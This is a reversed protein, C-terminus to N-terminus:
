DESDDEGTLDALGDLIQEWADEVYRWTATRGVFGDHVLLVHTGDDGPELAWTVRTPADEAGAADAAATLAFSHVLRHPEDVETVSGDVMVTGDDDVYRLTAGPMLSSELGSDFFHCRTEDSDTLARWVDEIGAEVTREMRHAIRSKTDPM